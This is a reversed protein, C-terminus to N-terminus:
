ENAGPVLTTLELIRVNPFIIALAEGESGCAGQLLTALAEVILRRASPLLTALEVLRHMGPFFAALEMVLGEAEGGM